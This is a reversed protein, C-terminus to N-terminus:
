AAIERQEKLFTLLNRDADMFCTLIWYGVYFVSCKHSVWSAKAELLLSIEPM